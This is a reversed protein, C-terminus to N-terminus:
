LTIKRAYLSAAAYLNTEFKPSPSNTTSIDLIQTEISGTNQFQGGDRIIVSDNKITGSNILGESGVDINETYPSNNEDVTLAFASGAFAALVSLAIVSKRM